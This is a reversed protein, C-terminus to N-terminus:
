SLTDGLFSSVSVVKLSPYVPFKKTVTKDENIVNAVNALM